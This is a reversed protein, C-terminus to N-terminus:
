HSFTMYRFLVAAGVVILSILDNKSKSKSYAIGYMVAFYIGVAPVAYGCISKMLLSKVDLGNLNSGTGFFKNGKPNKNNEVPSFDAYPNENQAKTEPKMPENNEVPQINIQNKVEPIVDESIDPMSMEREQEARQEKINYDSPDYNYVSSILEEDPMSYGCDSCSGKTIRGGCLPCKKQAM